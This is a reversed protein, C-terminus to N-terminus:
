EDYGHFAFSLKKILWGGGLLAPYVVALPYAVGAFIATVLLLMGDSDSQVGGKAIHFGLLGAAILCGVAIYATLLM